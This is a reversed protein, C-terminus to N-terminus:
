QLQQYIELLWIESRPAEELFYKLYREPLCM